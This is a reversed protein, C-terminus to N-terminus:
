PRSWCVSVSLCVMVLCQLRMSTGCAVNAPIARDRNVLFYLEHVNRAVTSSYKNRSLTERHLPPPPPKSSAPLSLSSGIFNLSTERSPDSPDPATTSPVITGVGRRWKGSASDVRPCRYFGGVTTALTSRYSRYVETKNDGIMKTTRTSCDVRHTHIHTRVTVQLSSSRCIQCM